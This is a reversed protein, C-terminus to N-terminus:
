CDATSGSTSWDCTDSRMSRILELLMGRQTSARSCTSAFAPRSRMGLGSPHSRWRSDSLSTAVYSSAIGVPTGVFSEIVGLSVVDGVILQVIDRKQAGIAKMIGIERTQETVSVFTINALSIAVVVFSIVVIGPIVGTFTDVMSQSLGLLCSCSRLLRNGTGYTAVADAGPLSRSEYDLFDPSVYRDCNALSVPCGILRVIPWCSVAISIM